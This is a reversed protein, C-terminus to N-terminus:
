ASPNGSRSDLSSSNLVLAGRGPLRCGDLFAPRSGPVHAKERGAPGPPEAHWPPSTHVPDTGSSRRLLLFRMHGSGGFGLGSFSIVLFAHYHKELSFRWIYVFLCVFLGWVTELTDDIKIKWWAISSVSSLGPGMSVSKPSILIHHSLFDLGWVLGQAYHSNALPSSTLADNLEQCSWM